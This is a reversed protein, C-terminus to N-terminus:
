RSANGRPSTGAADAEALREELREVERNLGRIRAQLLLLYVFLGAWFVAFGTFLYGLGDM